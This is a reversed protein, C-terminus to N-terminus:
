NLMSSALEFAKMKLREGGGFWASHLRRSQDRSHLIHDTFETVANYGGWLTGRALTAGQGSEHLELIKSRTNETRTQNEADTSPILKKVYEILQKDTVRKLAMRNFIFDLQDYLQNTLGLLKHAQELKEVASPTHRIRVGETGSLALSLTNNCVVRIPTLKARVLSSGDHSNCLLLYKNVIDKGHVKIYGPLKALIWIREGNGLAGATEYIAEGTGTLADFFTFAERNQLVTYREGVVGLVQNTDTRLTAFNNAVLVHQRKNIVAQLPKKVVAYDLGASIIAEEATAPQDLKVGLNHWPATGVYMMSARGNIFNLEHM